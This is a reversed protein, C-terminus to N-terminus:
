KMAPTTSGDELVLPLLSRMRLSGGSRVLIALSFDGGNSTNWLWGRALGWQECDDSIAIRVISGQTQPMELVDLHCFTRIISTDYRTYSAFLASRVQRVAPESQSPITWGAEARAVLYGGIGVSVVVLCLVIALRRGSSGRDKYPGAAEYGEISM